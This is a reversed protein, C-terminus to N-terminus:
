NPHSVQLPRTSEPAAEDSVGAGHASVIAPHAVSGEQHHSDAATDTEKIVRDIHHGILFFLALCIGPLVAMRLTFKSKQSVGTVM